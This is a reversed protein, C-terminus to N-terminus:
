PTGVPAWPVTDPARSLRTAARTLMAAVVAPHIRRVLAFYARGRRNYLRVVTTLVVRTPEVTVVARFDLHRADTGAVAETATRSRVAFASRGARDIGILGVVAERAAVLGRVWGPPDASFASVWAQPDTPMGPRLRVAFADAFDARPLVSLAGAPPESARARPGSTWRALRAISSLRTAPDPGTGLAVEARDLIQEVIGDHVPRLVWRWVVRMRGHARGDVIHRLLTREPGLPVVEFGHWGSLGQGPELTFVIRRGPAYASVRYRLVGHGDATGIAPPGVLWMPPWEPSPWLADHPGGIGDLLPAVAAAPAGLVREHVNHVRM